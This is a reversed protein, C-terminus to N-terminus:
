HSTCRTRRNERRNSETRTVAPSGGPAGRNNGQQHARSSALASALACSRACSACRCLPEPALQQCRGAIPQLAFSRRREVVTRPVRIASCLSMLNRGQTLTETQRASARYMGIAGVARACDVCDNRTRVSCDGADTGAARTCWRPNGLKPM